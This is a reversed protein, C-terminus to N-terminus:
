WRILPPSQLAHQITQNLQGANPAPIGLSLAELAVKTYLEFRSLPDRYATLQWADYVGSRWLLLGLHHDAGVRALDARGTWEKVKADIIAREQNSTFMSVMHSLVWRGFSTKGWSLLKESNSVGFTRLRDAAGPYDAM